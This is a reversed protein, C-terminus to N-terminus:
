AEREKRKRDPDAAKRQQIKRPRRKWYGGGARGKGM